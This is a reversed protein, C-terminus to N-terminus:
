PYSGRVVFVRPSVSSMYSPRSVMMVSVLEFLLYCPSCFFALFILVMSTLESPQPARQIRNIALSLAYVTIVLSIFYYMLTTSCMKKRIQNNSKDNVFHEKVIKYPLFLNSLNNNM